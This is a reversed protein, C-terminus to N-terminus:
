AGPAYDNDDDEDIGPTFKWMDTDGPRGSSSGGTTVYGYGKLSFAIAFGRTNMQSPMETVEDWRDKTLNYEWCTRSSTGSGTAVYGKEVGGDLNSTFAIAYARPIKDYDNDWGRGSIDKLPAKEEWINTEPNYAYVDQRYNTSNSSGTGLCVVAKGGLIFAVAGCRKEGKFGIDTWNTGDFCYFDKLTESGSALGTGVYGKNGLSFAVAERRPLANAPLTTVPGESWQAGAPKSPDFKYFDKFYEEKDEGSIGDRYGTGVYAIDNIVFAVAGYRGAGPFSDVQTWMGDKYKWFDRLTKDNDEVNNNLGLGVYVIDNITFTVAGTRPKGAFSYSRSWDGWTDDNSHCATFFLGLIALCLFNVRKM